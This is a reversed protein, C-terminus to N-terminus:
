GSDRKFVESEMGSFCPPQIGQLSRPMHPYKLGSGVNGVLAYGLTPNYVQGQLAYAEVHQAIYNTVTIPNDAADVLVDQKGNQETPPM